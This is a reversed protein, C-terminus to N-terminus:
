VSWIQQMESCICVQHEFQFGIYPFVIFVDVSVFSMVLIDYLGYVNSSMTYFQLNHLLYYYLLQINM